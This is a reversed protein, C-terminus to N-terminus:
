AVLRAPVYSEAAVGRDELVVEDAIEQLVRAIYEERHEQWHNQLAVDAHHHLIVCHLARCRENYIHAYLLRGLEHEDLSTRQEDTLAFSSVSAEIQAQRDTM